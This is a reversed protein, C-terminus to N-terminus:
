AIYSVSPGSLKQKRIRAYQEAGLVEYRPDRTRIVRSTEGFGCGFSLDGRRSRRRPEGNVEECQKENSNGRVTNREITLIEKTEM